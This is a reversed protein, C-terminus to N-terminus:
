PPRRPLERFTLYLEAGPAPDTDSGQALVTLTVPQPPLARLVTDLAGLTARTVDPSPLGPDGVLWSRSRCAASGPRAWRPNWGPWSNVAWGPGLSGPGAAPHHRAPRLGPASGRRGPRPLRGRDRAAAATGGTGAARFRGRRDDQIAVVAAREAALRSALEARRAALGARVRVTPRLAAFVSLIVVVVYTAAALRAIGPVATGLLRLVFFGNVALVLLAGAVWEWAPRSLAVLALLSVAGFISWDLAGAPSHVRRDWGVASVATVAVAIAVVAQGRTAGGERVHPILWWAAALLSLWVAIPVAPHRYDPLEALAQVPRRAPGRGPHGCHAAGRGRYCGAGGRSPEGDVLGVPVLDAQAAQAAQAAGPWSMSVLTGQGPASRVSVRGGRDAASPSRDACGWGPRTWGPRTLGAGADRVTVRLTGAALRRRRGAEGTGAHAAVNALAERTAHVLAGAVAPPVGPAAAGLEGAVELHVRLGRARMDGVMAEVRAVLSSGGPRRPPRTGRPRSRRSCNRSAKGAGPWWRSVAAGRSIATLTNLVTDHLLRDHERREINRSLVVYHEHAEQDAAAFGLDARGARSYLKSRGTWHVAMVVLLWCGASWRPTGM